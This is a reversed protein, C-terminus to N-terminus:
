FNPPPYTAHAVDPVFHALQTSPGLFGKLKTTDTPTPHDTIAQFREKTPQVGKASVQYGAFSVTDTPTPYDTIAQFREKTPQVGKASVQYGAFSVSEGVQMKKLSIVM